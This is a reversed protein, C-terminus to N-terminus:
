GDAPEGPTAAVQAPQIPWSRGTELWVRMLLLAKDLQPDIEPYENPDPRAAEEEEEDEEEGEASEEGDDEGEKVQEPSEKTEEDTKAPRTSARYETVHKLDDETLAAQNKGKLIDRKLQLENLKMREKPVLRARVDPDVGWTVSDEEKHLCQDNPLYYLATTLKIFATRSRNLPLVQQVSGKGYTREGLILARGHVQLAGSVIESASASYPSVLVIMPFDAYIADMSSSVEWPDGHRDRTSVIKEDADLLLDSVEVAAKLPGGPNDRLDFILGRM